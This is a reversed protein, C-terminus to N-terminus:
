LGGMRELLHDVDTADHYLGFGFRLRDARCDTEIGHQLLQRQLEGADSRRFTLFNGHAPDSAPIVLESERLGGSLGKIFRSQLAHAQGHIDAVTVGLDALWDFVARMRYLGTADFTAGWFRGGNDPYPIRGTQAKELHGLAAYWGTDRPRMGYGPPCHMFCAGEGAMAYKYGGALYFARDAVKRLDTPVAMFGHYGDIVVFTEKDPVANVIRPIDQVVHGSDFFVHSMFILDYGGKKVEQAMRDAFTNFPEAAMRTVKALGEEEFRAIQRSFSHFESGTTLVRIPEGAPFCSLLRAVFEHTNPAFVITEPDPLNLTTVIHGTLAPIVECFVKEWKANHLRASDQWYAEQAALTIDPWYHHSHAAFHLLDGNAMLFRSFYKKLGLTM